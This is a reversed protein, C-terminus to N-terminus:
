VNLDMSLGLNHTLQRAFALGINEEGPFAAMKFQNGYIFAIVPIHWLLFGTTTM